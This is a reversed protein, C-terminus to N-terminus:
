GNCPFPLATDGVLTKTGMCLHLLLHPNLFFFVSIVLHDVRGISYQQSAANRNQLMCTIRYQPQGPGTDRLVNARPGGVQLQMMM